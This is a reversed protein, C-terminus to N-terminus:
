ARVMRRHLGVPEAKTEGDFRFGQRKYFATARQNGDLVWLYAASSGIAKELLRGPEDDEAVLTAIPGTGVNTRWREIREARESRREVFISDPMLGAYGEKWVDLHLDTLAEADDTVAARIQM